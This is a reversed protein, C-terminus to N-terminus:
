DGALLDDVLRTFRDVLRDSVSPEVTELLDATRQPRALALTVRGRSDREKELVGAAELNTVHHELTSRAIGVRDAVDGPRNSADDLAALLVDRTTERRVLALVRRQFADYEPPYYHTRGFLEERALAGADVLDRVHYQVQGPAYPTDRVLENFHVGPTAAVAREISTRTDTM